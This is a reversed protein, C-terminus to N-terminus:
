AGTIKIQGNSVILECISGTASDRIKISDVPEQKLEDLKIKDSATMLGDNTQTVNKISDLKDKDSASMLGKQFPTAIGAQSSAIKADLGEVGDVTTQVAIKTGKSLGFEPNDDAMQLVYLPLSGDDRAMAKFKTRQTSLTGSLRSTYAVRAEDAAKQLRRKQIELAKVMQNSQSSKYNLITKAHNNLTVRTPQSNDLPYYTYGVIEVNTVFSKTRIELRKIEGLIPEENTLKTVEISLSPEPVLQSVAYAEMAKKDTFREDSVEDGPYLGWEKVSNQDTVLFPQFYYSGNDKQKGSARVQNVINTADYNLKIEPADHIYSLRRGLDQTLADHQFIRITKNYPYFIADPWTSIIKNLMDKGSGNGLDTIQHKAFTGRVDWTYGLSNGDLYYKLVDDVSYTFTGTRVNRQRIRAVDYAVHIATVQYTTFGNSHDATVQKIIFEQTHWWVSNGVSLLNFAISADDYASFSVQWQTNQEFNINFSNFLISHLPEAYTSHLGAIVIKNSTDALIFLRSASLLM